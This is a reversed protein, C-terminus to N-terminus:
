RCRNPSYSAVPRQIGGLIKIDANVEVMFTRDADVGEAVTDGVLALVEADGMASFVDGFQLRSWQDADSHPPVIEDIAGGQGM